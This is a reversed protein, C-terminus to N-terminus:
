PDKYGEFVECDQGLFNKIIKIVQEQIFEVQDPPCFDDLSSRAITIMKPRTMTKIIMETRIVLKKIEEEDSVHHPLDTDDCTCGADHILLWDVKDAEAEGYQDSIDKKIDSFAEFHQSNGKFKDQSGKQFLAALSGLEELLKRRKDGAKIRKGDDDPVKDFTYITKLREYLKVEKYMDKFPNLTSYFDLDIDLVCIKDKTIAELESVSSDHSIQLVHLTLDRSTELDLDKPLCAITESVFYNLLCTVGVQGKIDKRQGIKFKFTGNPIQNAWPPKIWVLINFIGMNAAPLIWNEISVEELINQPSLAESAKLGSPWLMDPHSDLHVLVNESTPISKSGVAKFIHPLAHHHDEEVKIPIKKFSRHAM